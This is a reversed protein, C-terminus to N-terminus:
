KYVIETYDNKTLNPIEQGEKLYLTTLSEGRRIDLTNLAPCESVDISTVKDNYASWSSIYMKINEIQSSSIKVEDVYINDYTGYKFDKIPNDGLIWEKVNEAYSFSLTEVKKLASLNVVELEEASGLNVVTLNPFNEIGTLDTLDWLNYYMETAELGKQTVVYESDNIPMVWGEDIVFELLGGDPINVPVANPDKQIISIDQRVSGGSVRIVGMRSVAAEALDYVFTVKKLGDADMAEDTVTKETIWDGGEYVVATYDVNCRVSFSVTRQGLDNVLVGEGEEILIAETKQQTLSVNVQKSVLPSSINITTSRDKYTENKAAVFVMYTKGGFENKDAFELWEDGGDSYTIVPNEINSNLEIVVKSEEKAAEMNEESLLELMYGAESVVQLPAVASGTFFKFAVTRKENVESADVTFKVVDGSKGSTASPHVWESVGALRWDGSSTVTVTAEGGNKDVQIIETSLSITALAGTADDDDNSCGWLVLTASLVIMLKNLLKM